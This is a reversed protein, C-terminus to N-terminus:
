CTFPVRKRRMSVVGPFNLEALSYLQGRNFSSVDKIIIGGTSHGM